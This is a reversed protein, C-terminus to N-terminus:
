PSKPLIRVTMANRASKAPSALKPPATQKARSALAVHAHGLLDANLQGVNARASPPSRLPPYQCTTLSRVPPNAAGYLGQLGLREPLQCPTHSRMAADGQCQHARRLHRRVPAKEAFKGANIEVAPIDNPDRANRWLPPLGGRRHKWLVAPFARATTRPSRRFPDASRHHRATRQAAV